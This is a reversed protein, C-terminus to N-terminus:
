RAPAAYGQQIIWRYRYGYGNGPVAIMQSDYTYVSYTQYEALPTHGLVTKEGRAIFYDGDSAPLVQDPQAPTAYGSMQVIASTPVFYPPEQALRARSHACGCLTAALLAAMIWGRM